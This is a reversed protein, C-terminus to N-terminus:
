GLGPSLLSDCGMCCILYGHLHECLSFGAKKLELKASEPYKPTIMLRGSRPKVLLVAAETYGPEPYHFMWSVVSMLVDVTGAGIGRLNSPNAEVTRFHLDDMGSAMAIDAACELSSYFPFKGGMQYGAHSKGASRNVDNQSRDLIIHSSNVNERSLKRHLLVHYMGLGAGIDVVRYKSQASANVTQLPLFKKIMALLGSAAVDMEKSLTSNSLDRLAADCPKGARNNCRQLVYCKEIAWQCRQPVVLDGYQSAVGCVCGSLFLVQSLSPLRM